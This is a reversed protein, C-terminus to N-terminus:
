NKEVQALKYSVLEEESLGRGREPDPVVKIISKVSPAYWSTKVSFSRRNDVYSTLRIRYSEFAGAKTEIREFATVEYENEYNSKHGGVSQRWYSNGWKKGVFLPFDLGQPPNIIQVAYKPELQERKTIQLNDNYYSIYRTGKETIAEIVFSGDEEVKIVKSNRVDRQVSPSGAIEYVWSDGAVMKPKNAIQGAPPIPTQAHSTTGYGLVLHVLFLVHLIIPSLLRTTSYRMTKVREVPGNIRILWGRYKM